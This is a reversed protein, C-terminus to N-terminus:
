NRKLQAIFGIAITILALIIWEFVYGLHRGPPVYTNVQPIPYTRAEDQTSLTESRSPLFLMDTKDVDSKVIQELSIEASNTAIFELYVPLLKYPVQKQMHQIDVRLWADVWKNNEGAPPDEPALFKRNMTDKILGYFSIQGPYNRFQIRSEPDSQKDPIFGRNVLIATESNALKFPTIVYFGPTKKYRRNRLIMEKDFDFNGTVNVKRHILQSWDNKFNVLENQNLIEQQMRNELEAILAIKAEHRTWQWYSARFMLLAIVGSILTTSLSFKFFHRRSKKEM